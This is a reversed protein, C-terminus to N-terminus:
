RSSIRSGTAGSRPACSRSGRGCGTGTALLTNIEGNHGLYRFPQALVWNPFTNTSYRQHFVAIATEFSPDTLDEYFRNLQPAVLLGKYVITRSSFSPIYASELRAQAFAREILRRTYYLAREFQSFPDPVKEGHRSAGPSFTGSGVLLHQIAPMTTLAKDGLVDPNVPVERWGYHTLGQERVIRDAIGKAASRNSPDQPLFFVGVGLDQPNAKPHGMRYLERALLKRPLQTLIGAGDGTKADASVAGRHTVCCVGQIAMRLIRHSPKGSVDAVFGVGCSDKEFEPRWLTNM